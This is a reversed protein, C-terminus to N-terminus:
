QSVFFPKSSRAKKTEEGPESSKSRSESSKSRTQWACGRATRSHRGLEPGPPRGPLRNDRSTAAPRGAAGPRATHAGGDQRGQAARLAFNKRGLLLQVSAPIEGGTRREFWETLREPSKGRSIGRELSAGSILFRREGRAAAPGADSSPVPDAFHALEADVLLDARAPDLTLTVGDQEVSVCTEPPRRYDRSSMLRLRSYPVTRDDEVLLFREAVPVPPAEDEGTPWFELARNRDAENGFEMLTTTAYFIVRERREAWDNIADVVGRSLPRQSHRTLTELMWEPKAGRDLGFM